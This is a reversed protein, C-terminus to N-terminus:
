RDVVCRFGITGARDTGPSLLLYKGYKDLEYAQPFYWSSTQPHYYSGGKLIASRTHDDRYEDTWQWVNGVMDMVGFPSAGQPYANVNSPLRVNRSSDPLPMKESDMVNGWPYIFGQKGQGAYQWEWEHPLRKGAWSAYARADEISVWTVPQEESGTPYSGNKWDKLFHHGDKPHYKSADLFKKFQKNTVPYQDICFSPIDMVRKQSRAPHKEWPHQVGIADPLEDGEIMVGKSEFTFNKVAPILIMGEPTTASIPTKNETLMLQTLVTRETSFSKLPKASLVHMKAIFANLSQNAAGSAIVLVAGFGRSEIAFRLYVSDGQKQPSLEVGHYLDIYKMGHRFLLKLQQGERDTSDRNVLTYLTQNADPFATAFIGKQITPIHPQWGPSSWIEPFQRYIAAIRRIAAAYRDTVQNWIGWINEWATYGIGNFFAYQLDDTKDTVWRNTVLVQHKPEFWKYTSVGPIREYNWYYGWTNGNWEIMKLDGLNLEPQFALSYHLSDAAKLFDETIGTMTDGNLGDAGIQQMEKVLAAAMPERQARTGKDWIMIPFFVRVGRQKFHSIMGKVGQLGGPMDSVWDFQNRNDIGINPYTPWILVADLGGFRKKVDDLYRDVTYKGSVPDFLYRDSGMTLTYIFIKHQWGAGHKRYMSDNYNFRSKESIRWNKMESLWNEYQAPNAPGKLLEKLDGQQEPSQAYQAHSFFLLGWVMLLKRKKM